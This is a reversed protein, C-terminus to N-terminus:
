NKQKLKLKKNKGVVIPQLVKGDALKQVATLIREDMGEPFVIKVGKGAVKEQVTSFIDAM